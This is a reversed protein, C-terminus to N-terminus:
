SARGTASNKPPVVPDRFRDLQMMQHAPSKLLQYLERLHCPYVHLTNEKEVVPMKRQLLDKTVRGGAHVFAHRVLGTTRIREDFWIAERLEGFIERLQKNFPKTGVRVSENPLATQMVRVLFSEYATFISLYCLRMSAHLGMQFPGQSLYHKWVSEPDVNVELNDNIEIIEKTIGALRSQIVDRLRVDACLEPIEIALRTLIVDSYELIRKPRDSNDAYGHQFNTLTEPAIAAIAGAYSASRWDLLLDRIPQAISTAQEAENIAVPGFDDDFFPRYESQRTEYM